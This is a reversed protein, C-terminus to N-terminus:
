VLVAASLFEYSRKPNNRKIASLHCAARLFRFFRGWLKLDEDQMDSRLALSELSFHQSEMLWFLAETYSPDSELASSVAKALLHGSQNLSGVQVTDNEVQMPLESGPLSRIVGFRFLLRSIAFADDLSSRDDGIVKSLPFKPSLSANSGPRYSACSLLGSLLGFFRLQESTHM